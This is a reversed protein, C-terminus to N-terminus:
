PTWNFWGAFFFFFSIIPLFVQSKWSMVPVRQTTRRGRRRGQGGHDITTSKGGFLVVFTNRESVLIVLYHSDRETMRVFHSVVRHMMLRRMALFHLRQGSVTLRVASTATNSVSFVTSDTERSQTLHHLWFGTHTHTDTHTPSSPFVIRDTAAFAFRGAFGSIHTFISKNCHCLSLFLGSMLTQVNILVRVTEYTSFETRNEM